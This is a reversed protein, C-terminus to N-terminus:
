LASSKVYKIITTREMTRTGIYAYAYYIAKFWLIGTVTTVISIVCNVIYM